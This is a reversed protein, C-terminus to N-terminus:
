RGDADALRWHHDIDALTRELGGPSARTQWPEDIGALPLRHGNTIVLVRYREASDM